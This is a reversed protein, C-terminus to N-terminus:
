KNLLNSVFFWVNAPREALRRMFYPYWQTGYPVYVRVSYGAEVLEEQLDRRIGYLMQFEFAHPHIHKTKVLAIIHKIRLPDHTAFAALPPIRGNETITESKQVATELMIEALHDYNADVDEKRPFAVSAPEQYAGKCLRIKGNMQTIRAVDQESRYLYAQIVIGLNAFTIRSEIFTDITSTTLSSDEMDIRIFNNLQNARTLIRHLNEQCMSPSIALGFQSLKISVNATIASHEIAELIMLVEQTASDADQTSFTHEGLFDLSTNIGNQNLLRVAEVAQDIAEGAVFRSSVRRALTWRSMLRQMWRAKSLSIFFSRMM